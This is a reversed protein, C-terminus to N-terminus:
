IVHHNSLSVCMTFHNSCDLWNVCRRVYMKQMTLAGVIEGLLHRTTLVTNVTTMMSSVAARSKNIRHLELKTGKSWRETQGRM